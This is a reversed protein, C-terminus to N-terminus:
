EIIRCTNKKVKRKELYYSLVIILSFVVSIIIETYVVPEDSIMFVNEYKEIMSLIRLEFPKIQTLFIFYMLKKSLETFVTITESYVLMYGFVSLIIKYFCLVNFCKTFKEDNLNIVMNAIKMWVLVQFVASMILTIWFPLYCLFGLIYSIFFLFFLVFISNSKKNLIM